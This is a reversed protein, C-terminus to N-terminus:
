RFIRFNDLRLIVFDIQLFDNSFESFLNFEGERSVYLFFDNEVFCWFFTEM